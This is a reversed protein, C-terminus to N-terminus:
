KKAPCDKPDVCNKNSDRLYGHECRCQRTLETCQLGPCFNPNPHPNACTPECMHGCLDSKENSGCVHINDIEKDATIITLMLFFIFVFM